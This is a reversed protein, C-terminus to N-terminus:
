PSPNTNTTKNNIKFQVCEKFYAQNEAMYRRPDAGNKEAFEIMEKKCEKAARVTDTNSVSQIFIDKLIGLLLGIVSLIVFIRVIYGWIKWDANFACKWQAIM